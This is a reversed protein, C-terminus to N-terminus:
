VYVKAEFKKLKNNRTYFNSKITYHRTESFDDTKFEKAPIIYLKTPDEKKGKGFVVLYLHTAVLKGSRSVETEFLDPIKNDKSETGKVEIARIEKEDEKGESFSLVDFGKFGKKTQMDVCERGQSHEYSIVFSVAKGSVSEERKIMKEIKQRERKQKEKKTLTM